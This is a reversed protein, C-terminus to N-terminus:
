CQQWNQSCPPPPPSHFDYPKSFMFIKRHDYSYMMIQKQKAIQMITANTKAMVNLLDPSLTRHVYRCSAIPLIELLLM